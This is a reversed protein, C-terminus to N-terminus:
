TESADAAVTETTEEETDTTHDEHFIADLCIDDLDVM